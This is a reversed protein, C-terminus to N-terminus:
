ICALSAPTINHDAAQKIIYPLAVSKFKKDMLLTIKM